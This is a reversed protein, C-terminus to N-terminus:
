AATHEHANDLPLSVEVRTGGEPRFEIAVSGGFLFARERMNSLGMGAGSQKAPSFGVGDDEIALVYEGGSKEGRFSIWGPKGHRLANTVAEQCIRFLALAQNGALEEHDEVDVVFAVDAPAIATKGFHELAAELGFEDLLPPRLDATIKRASAIGMDLAQNLAAEQDAPLAHAPLCQLILKIATFVQGLQDHVERAIRRRDQEIARDQEAAFRAIRDRADALEATRQAVRQELLQKSDRLGEAEELRERVANIEQIGCPAARVGFPRILTNVARTLRRGALSGGLSGTLAALITGLALATGAKVMPVLYIGRPIELVVSWASVESPAVFRVANGEARGPDFDAPGRHAITKGQSDLLALSWDEPLALQAMRQQFHATEITALIVHKSPGNRKIPVALAVVPKGVVPGFVVDGVAPRGTAVATPGAARGEPRPLLPLRTGLPVRTNLVMKMPESAGAVIVHSGFNEKFSLAQRYFDPMGQPNEEPWASALVQLGQLRAVIHQDIGFAFNHALAGAEQRSDQQRHLVFDYAVWGSFLVLPLICLWILRTLFAPLTTARMTGSNKNQKYPFCRPFLRPMRLAPVWPMIGASSDSVTGLGGRGSCCGAGDDKPRGAAIVM